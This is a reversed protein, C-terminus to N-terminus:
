EGQSVPLNGARIGAQIEPSNKLLLITRLPTRTSKGSIEAIVSVTDTVEKLVSDPKLAYNVLENMLSDADYWKAQRHRPQPM